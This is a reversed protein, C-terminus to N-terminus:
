GSYFAVLLGARNSPTTKVTMMVITAAVSPLVCALAVGITQKFRQAAWACSTVILIHVGGQAISLLSTQLVTFGFSNIIINGVTPTEVTLAVDCTCCPSTEFLRRIGGNPNHKSDIGPLQKTSARNLILCQKKGADLM